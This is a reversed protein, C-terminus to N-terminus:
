SCLSLAVKMNSLNDKLVYTKIDEITIDGKRYLPGMEGGTFQDKPSEIGLAMCVTDLSCMAFRLGKWDEALDLTYIEWPKKGRLNLQPPLKVKNVFMRTVLTPIDYGKINYGALNMNRNSNLHQSFENLLESEDDSHLVLNEISKDHSIAGVALCLVKSFESHLPSYKIYINDPSISNENVVIDKLLIQGDSKIVDLYISEKQSQLEKELYKIHHKKMWIDKHVDPAKDLSEYQSIVETDFFYFNTLENISYLM